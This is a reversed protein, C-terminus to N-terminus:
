WGWLEDVCMQEVVPVVRVGVDTGVTRSSIKKKARKAAEMIHAFMRIDAEERLCPALLSM